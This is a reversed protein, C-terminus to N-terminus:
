NQVDSAAFHSQSSQPSEDLSSGPFLVRQTERAAMLRRPLRGEQELHFKEVEWKEEEIRLRREDRDDRRAQAEGNMANRDRVVNSVNDHMRGSLDELDDHVQSNSHEWQQSMLEMLKDMRAALGKQPERNRRNRGSSPPPLALAPDGAAVVASPDNDGGDVAIGLAACLTAKKAEFIDNENPSEEGAFEPPTAQRSILRAFEGLKGEDGVHGIMADAVTPERREPTQQARQQRAVMGAVALAQSSQNQHRARAMARANGGGRRTLRWLPLLKGAQEELESLVVNTGTVFVNKFEKEDLARLKGNLQQRVADATINVDHFDQLVHNNKILQMFREAVQEYGHERSTAFETGFVGVEEAAAFLVLYTDSFWKMGVRRRRRAPPATAAPDEDVAVGNEGADIAAGEANPDEEPGTGDVGGALALAAEDVEDVNNHVDDSPDVGDFNNDDEPLNVEIENLVQEAFQELEEEEALPGARRRRRTAPPPLPPEIRTVAEHRTTAGTKERLVANLVDMELSGMPDNNAHDRLM